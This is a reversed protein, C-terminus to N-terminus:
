SILVLGGIIFAFVAFLAALAIVEGICVWLATVAAWRPQVRQAVAIISLTVAAIWTPVVLFATIWAPGVGILVLLLPALSLGLATWALPSSKPATPSASTPAYADTM